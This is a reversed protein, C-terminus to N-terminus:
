LLLPHSWMYLNLPVSAYSIHEGFTICCTWLPKLIHWQVHGWPALVELVEARGSVNDTQVFCARDCSLGNRLLTTSPTTHPFDGESCYPPPSQVLSPLPLHMLLSMHPQLM